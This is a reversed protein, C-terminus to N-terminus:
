EARSGDHKLRALGFDALIVYLCPVIFLVLVTAIALGFAISIAIPKVMQAQFSREMIIPAIGFITTITTLTIARFRDRSAQKAASKLDMTKVRLRVFEMLLISNNVVIGCLSAFGMLGPMSLNTRMVMYGFVVGVIALPISILVVSTEIYSKFQFALLLFIGIVGMIFANLLSMGTEQSRRAQGEISTTLSPYKQVLLPMLERRFQMTIELSNARTRDVAGQVTTTRRGNVRSIKAWGITQEFSVLNRLPISLGSPAVISLEELDSITEIAGRILEVQIEYTRNNVIIDPIRSGSFSSRVQSSIDLMTLGLTRAGEKLKMTIEPKGLRQDDIVDYVGDYTSLWNQIEYSAQKLENLDTGSIRIEFPRGAPGSTAEDFQLALAGAVEGTAARWERIIETNRVTRSDNDVLDVTLTAVHPGSEGVSNNEGIVCSTSEVIQGTKSRDNFMPKIAELGKLARDVVKQTEEVPTGQPMLISCKINDGELGPFAEYKLKGGAIMAFALCLLLIMFGIVAYRWEVAIDVIRGVVKERVYEILWNSFRQVIFPKTTRRKELTGRIHHPLILFSHVFSVTIVIILAIPLYKLVQGMRGEIMMLPVFVVVTTLFSYLVGIWVESIGDVIADLSKKGKAFQTAMNESLVIASDMLIGTAMLLAMTTYMNISIDFLPFIFFTGMFAVPLALAVWFAYKLGFFFWMALFVLVLGQVANVSIMEIRDRIISSFDDTIFHEVGPTATKKVRELFEMVQDYVVLADETKSKFVTIIGARRGNFQSMSDDDVFGETIVAIEGLKREAGSDSIVVLSEFESVSKRDDDFRLLFTRGKTKMTGAPLNLSQSSIQKTLSSITLGFAALTDDTVEIKIQRDPFGSVTVQSVKSLSLLRDKFDDCYNKLSRDDMPGTVAISVVREMRESVEVKIDEVEAPFDTITDVASKIDDLFTRINGKSDMEVRMSLRGEVCTARVESVYSIGELSNEIRQALAEEVEQASAGRYNASIAVVTPEFEPFTERELKPLAMLGLIFMCIVLLNSATPHGAFFRIM